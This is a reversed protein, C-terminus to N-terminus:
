TRRGEALLKAIGAWGIVTADAWGDVHVPWVRVDPNPGSGDTIALHPYDEWVDGDVDEDWMYICVPLDPDLDAYWGAADLWQKWDDPLELLNKM